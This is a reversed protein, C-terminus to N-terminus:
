DHLMEAAVGHIMESRAVAKFDDGSNRNCFMKRYSARKLKVACNSTLSVAFRQALSLDVVKRTISAMDWGHAEFVDFM